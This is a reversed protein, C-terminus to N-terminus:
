GAACADTFVDDRGDALALRRRAERARFRLHPPVGVREHALVAHGVLVERRELRTEAELAEDIEGGDDAIVRHDGAREVGEAHLGARSLRQQRHSLLAWAPWFM